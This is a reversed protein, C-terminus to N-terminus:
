ILSTGTIETSFFGLWRIESKLNQTKDFFVLLLPNLLGQIERSVKGPPSLALLPAKQQAVTAPAHKPQAEQKLPILGDVDRSRKGGSASGWRCWNVLQLVVECM